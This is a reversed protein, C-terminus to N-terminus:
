FKKKPFGLNLQMVPTPYINVVISKLEKIFVHEIFFPHPDVDNFRGRVVSIPQFTYTVLASKETLAGSNLL